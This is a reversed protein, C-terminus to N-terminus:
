VYTSGDSGSAVTEGIDDDTGRQEVERHRAAHRPEQDAELRHQRPRQTLHVLVARVARVAVALLDIRELRAADAHERHEGEPEVLVPWVDELAREAEPPPGAHLEGLAREAEALPGVHEAGREADQRRKGARRRELLELGGAADAGAVP